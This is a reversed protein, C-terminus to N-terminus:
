DFGCESEFHKSKLPAAAAKNIISQSSSLSRSGNASCEVRGGERTSVMIQHYYV